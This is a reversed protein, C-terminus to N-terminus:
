HPHRAGTRASAAIRAYPPPTVALYNGQRLHAALAEQQVADLQVTYSTRAPM